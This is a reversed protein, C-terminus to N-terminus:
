TYIIGGDVIKLKLSQTIVIQTLEEKFKIAM